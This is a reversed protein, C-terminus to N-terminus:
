ENASEAEDLGSEDIPSERDGFGKKWKKEKMRAKLFDTAKYKALQEETLLERVQLSQQFLSRRLQEELDVMKDYKQNLETQYAPGKKPARLSLSLEERAARYIERKKKTEERNKSRIEKLKEKQEPTLNLEKAFWLGRHKKGKMQRQSIGAEEPAAPPAAQAAVPVLLSSLILPALTKMLM